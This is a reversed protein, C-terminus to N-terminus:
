MRLFATSTSSLIKWCHGFTAQVIRVAWGGRKSVRQEGTATCPRRNDKSRSFSFSLSSFWPSNVPEHKMSATQSLETARCAHNRGRHVHDALQSGLVRAVVERQGRLEELNEGTLRCSDRRASWVDKRRECQGRM